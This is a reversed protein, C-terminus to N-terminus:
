NMPKLLNLMKYKPLGMLFKILLESIFRKKAAYCDGYVLWLARIKNTKSPAVGVAYIIDKQQWKEEECDRCEATIRSDDAYLKDKPHSSNLALASTFNEIKKIEIAGSNRIIADPPNNQNGLYSFYKTYIKDKKAFNNEALSNCFIDKVYRELADGVSNARNSVKYTAVIDNIPNNIINTIAILLNTM